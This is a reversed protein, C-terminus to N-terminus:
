HFVGPIDAGCETCKGKELNSIKTAYGSRKILLSSCQHCDTNSGDSHNINGVYVYKLGIELALQRLKLLTSPTTPAANILKYDPHFATFHVPVMSDLERLIWECMNKIEQEKDNYSPIVLTTIEIWKNLKKLKKLCELVPKLKSLTLKQYFEDNFAKLDVNAGDINEYVTEMAEDTIYGNTVMVNKIEMNRSIEATDMVYEAYITPENYTYAISHSDYHQVMQVLRDPPLDISRSENFKAESLDWNQCYKCAMNCGATGISVIKTGPLFHYLPKKEIPDVNVAYPKGYVLSKMEGDVNKRVYCFGHQGSKLKCYRPCLTCKLRGDDLQKYFQADHMKNRWNKM